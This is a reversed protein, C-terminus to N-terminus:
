TLEHLHSADPRVPVLEMLTVPRNEAMSRNGAAGVLISVAGQEHGAGRGWPDAPPNPSFIQEALLPDAGGHGGRPRTVPVEYSPKFHPYVRISERSTPDPARQERELEEDSQGRIIHSGGFEYYELRGRDGNFTVRMGERPSFCVLSYTLLQGTRYRVSLSMADQITIDDRFVNRDRLYGSDAEADLYLAQLSGGDSLALRFPDGASDSGTYRDYRTLAEDGRALANRRGYFFLGGHAFVQDPIGDIWWNVLDFHHTAKHVLLGGSQDVSAHWRRFYDAGHRTDLLYELNVTKVSGIAGSALLERVKTRFPGWRYNFAVRVRRGTQKVADMIQQCKPADITMPKETVVDCGNHLAAVIYEHHTADVSTVVVVDPRQERLMEVFRAAPYTPVAHYGWEKELCVNHYDMRTQSVDCLGVLDGHAGYTSVMPRLFCGARAGTGVLVYRKKSTM